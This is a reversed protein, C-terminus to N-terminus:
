IKILASIRKTIEEISGLGNIDSVEFKSKMYVIAPRTEKEFIEIRKEHTTTDQDDKRDSSKARTISRALLEERPVEINIVSKVKVNKGDILSFLTDVQSITRPYGDLIIGKEDLNEEIIKQIMDKMIQDPVLAGKEEYTAMIKGLPSRREKEERIRDGTSIHSFGLSEELLSCQTGKGSYPPGTFIIIEM